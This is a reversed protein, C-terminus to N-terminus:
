EPFSRKEARSETAATIRSLLRHRFQYFSVRARYIQLRMSEVRGVYKWLLRPLDAMFQPDDQSDSLGFGEFNAIVLKVYHRRVRSDAYCKMNFAWDGYVKYHTDYHGLTDFISANYFISQHCINRVRFEAPHFEGCVELDYRALYADGYVFALEDSPLVKDIQELINPRLTDGAGLFYIYQGTARRIGKNMADYVGCDAESLYDIRGEYQRLLHTTEDTSGGDIVILEYLTGSQSLVSDITAALKHGCNLTPIIISFRPRVAKKAVGYCYEPVRM